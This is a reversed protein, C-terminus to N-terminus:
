DYTDIAVQVSQTAANPTLIECLVEVTTSSIIQGINWMTLVSGSYSYFFRKTSDYKTLSPTNIFASGGAVTAGSFTLQVTSNTAITRSPSFSVRVRQKMQTLIGITEFGVRYPKLNM